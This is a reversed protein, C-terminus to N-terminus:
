ALLKALRSRARQRVGPRGEQSAPSISLGGPSVQMPMATVKSTAVTATQDKGLLDTLDESGSRRRTVISRSRKIGGGPAQNESPFFPTKPREIGMTLTRLGALRGRARSTAKLDFDEPLFAEPASHFDIKKESPKKTLKDATPIRPRTRFSRDDILSAQSISTYSMSRKSFNSTISAMSLKRIVHGASARMSYEGRKSGLGPFPLTDKTWIDMLMAELHIRDSRRPALVPIHSPTIVSQSRPIPLALVSSDNEKGAAQTNKIIVQNLETLPGLTAARQVSARRRFDCARGYAKGVSRMEDTLPSRIDIIQSRGENLYQKEVAIRGSIQGRWVDAEAKSCAVSLIEFLAGDSEFILKWTHPTTHCQLAKGNDPEEIASTSLPIVLSVHYKSSSTASAIVICSEYLIAIAYQGRINTTGRYAFYLTGCLLLRGFQHFMTEIADQKEFLLREQLLRHSNFTRLREPNGSAKNLDHCTQSIVFLADDLTSHSVPDDGCPTLTCLDKFLLEYRTARQIPQIM